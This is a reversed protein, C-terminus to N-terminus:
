RTITIKLMAELHEPKKEFYKRVPHLIQILAESIATKLDAPHLKGSAYDKEMDIYSEYTIDGGYKKPREVKIRNIKPFIIYKAIQLLPNNDVVKQPCYAKSIKRKIDDPSDTIFICGEPKSKSMKAELMVEEPSLSEMRELGRLSPLLPTHLAVVRRLGMKGAVERQLVHARRQDMGGLALHVNLEFIDDVQMAPYLLKSFDAEAEDQKRGMITIARKIRALTLKKCIKLYREWYKMRGVLEDGYIYEVSGPVGVAELCEKIYESCIRINEMKGGLKDNIYAHWNALLVMTEFGADVLDVLKWAWILWGIHFMGSPEVGIYARPREEEELLKRLDEITIVEVTNRTIRQIREDM